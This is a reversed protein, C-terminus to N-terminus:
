QGFSFASNPDLTQIRLDASSVWEFAYHYLFFSQSSRRFECIPKRSKPDPSCIKQGTYRDVITIVVTSPVPSKWLFFAVLAAKKDGGYSEIHGAYQHADGVIDDAFRFSVPKTVSIDISQEPTSPVQNNSQLNEFDDSTLIPCPLLDSYLHGGCVVKQKVVYFQVTAATQAPACDSGRLVFLCIAACLL